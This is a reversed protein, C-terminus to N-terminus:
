ASYVTTTDNYDIVPVSWGNRFTGNKIKGRWGTLSLRFPRGFQAFPNGEGDLIAQSVEDIGSQWDNLDFAFKRGECDIVPYADEPTSFAGAGDVDNGISDRLGDNQHFNGDAGQVSDGVQDRVLDHFVSMNEYTESQIFSSATREHVVGDKTLRLTATARIANGPAPQTDSYSFTEPDPM